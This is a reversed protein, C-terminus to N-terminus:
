LQIGMDNGVIRGPRGDLAFAAKHRRLLAVLDADAEGQGDIGVCFAADVLTTAVDQALSPTAAAEDAFADVPFAPDTEDVALSFGAAAEHQPTMPSLTFTEAASSVTDGVRAAVADAIVTGRPLIFPAVGHNGVLVHRVAAHTLVGVPGALRVTEDPSVCMRPGVTYDVDPALCSADVPVWAQTGAPLDVDHAVCLEAEAAFPGALREHVQFTYIGIRGRGRVPCIGVGHADIFDLGLCMGPGFSPLVHFDQDLELHAHRGQPDQVRIFLPLTVWGLTTAAGIGQVKMPVGTPRGGMKHLLDADICSLSAGTDLLSSMARGDTDNVRVHMTLPVHSRYGKGTGTSASRALPIVRGFARKPQSLPPLTENPRLQRATTFVSKHTFFIQSEPTSSAAPQDDHPATSM